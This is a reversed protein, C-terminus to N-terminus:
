YKPVKAEEQSIQENKVEKLTQQEIHAEVPALQKDHEEVPANKKAKTRRNRPAIDKSGIPRGRKLHTKSENSKHGEPVEIWTPANM